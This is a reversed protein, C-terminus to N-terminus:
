MQISTELKQNLKKLIKTLNEIYDVVSKSNRGAPFWFTILFQKSLNYANKMKVENGQKHEITM